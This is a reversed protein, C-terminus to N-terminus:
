AEVHGGYEGAFLASILYNATGSELAKFTRPLDFEGNNDTTVNEEFYDGTNTENIKITVIRNTVPNNGVRKALKGSVVHESPVEDKAVSLSLVTSAAVSLM